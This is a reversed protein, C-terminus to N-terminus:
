SQSLVIHQMHIKIVVTDLTSKTVKKVIEMRILEAKPTRKCGAALYVYNVYNQKTYFKSLDIVIINGYNIKNM